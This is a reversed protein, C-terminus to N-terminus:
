VRLRVNRLVEYFWGTVVPLVCNESVLFKAFLL